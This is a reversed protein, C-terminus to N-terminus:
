ESRCCRHLNNSLYDQTNTTILTFAPQIPCLDQLSSQAQLKETHLIDSVTLFYFRNLVASCPAPFSHCHQWRSPPLLDSLAAQTEVATQSRISSLKFSNYIVHATRLIKQLKTLARVHTNAWLRGRLM